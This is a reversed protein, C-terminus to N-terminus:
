APAVRNRITAMAIVADSISDLERALRRIQVVAALAELNQNRNFAAQMENIMVLLKDGVDAMEQRDSERVSKTM